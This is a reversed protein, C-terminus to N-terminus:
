VVEICDGDEVGYWAVVQAGDDMEVRIREEGLLAYIRTIDKRALLKVLKARLARVPTSPLVAITSNDPPTEALVKLDETASDVHTRGSHHLVCQAISVEPHTPCAAAGGGARWLRRAGSLMPVPLRHFSASQRLEQLRAHRRGKESITGDERQIRAWYFREAEAREARSVPSNELVELLTLRGVILLRAAKEDEAASFPNDRISLRRLLPFVSALRDLTTWSVVNNSSLDLSEISPVSQESRELDGLRNHSLGVRKLSPM